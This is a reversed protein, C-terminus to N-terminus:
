KAAAFAAAEKVWGMLEDDIEEPGAGGMHPTGRGPTPDPPVAPRPPAM